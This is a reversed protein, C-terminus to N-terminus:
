NAGPRLKASIAEAIVRYGNKNPHMDQASNAYLKDSASAQVLAPLSDVFPIKNANLHEILRERCMRENSIVKRAIEGLEGNQNKELYRAFVSEKTPIIVVVLRAGHKACLENMEALLKFTVRMGEQVTPSSQDLGRLLGKPSFSEEVKQEPLILSFTSDYLKAANQVQVKAKLGALLGHVTVRYLISHESLWVRVHKHWSADQTNAPKEWIDAEAVEGARQRLPAWYNLGYTIRYANDFDDGMYLGCIVTKPKLKFTTTELLHKYQNPGYGGMGLNYIKKGALQSLAAPWAEVMKACNGYTHSDGIAVIDASAPVDPNRFGWEDHGSSRPPLRIGLIDDRVLRPSLYDVPDFVLRSGWECVVLAVVMSVAFLALNALRKLWKSASSQPATM